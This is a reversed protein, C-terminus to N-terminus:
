NLVSRRSVNEHQATDDKSSFGITRVWTLPMGGAHELGRHSEAPLNRFTIGLSSIPVHAPQHKFIM